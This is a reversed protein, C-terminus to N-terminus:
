TKAEALFFMFVLTICLMTERFFEPDSARIEVTGKGTTKGFAKPVRQPQESTKRAHSM